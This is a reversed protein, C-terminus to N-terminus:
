KGVTFFRTVIDGITSDANPGHAVTTALSVSTALNACSGPSGMLPTAEWSVGEQAGANLVLATSLETTFDLCGADLVIAIDLQDCPQASEVWGQFGTSTMSAGPRSPAGIGRAQCVCACQGAHPAGLSGGQCSIDDLNCETTRCCAGHSACAAGFKPHNPDQTQCIGECGSSSQKYAPGLSACYLDCMDSCTQNAVCSPGGTGLCSLDNVDDPNTLCDPFPFRDPDAAQAIPVVNHNQVIDQDMPTGGDCDILGPECNLDPRPRSCLVGIPNIPFGNPDTGLNVTACEATGDIPDVAGCTIETTSDTLAVIQKILGGIPNEQILFNEKAICLGGPVCGKHFAPDSCEEGDNSGGECISFPTNVTVHSGIEGTPICFCNLCSGGGSCTGGPPDCEEGSELVGNGCVAGTGAGTAIADTEISETTNQICTALTEGACGPFLEGLTQGGGPIGACKELAKTLKTSCDKVIRGKPDGPPAGGICAALGAADEISGDKLGAKVCEGYGKWYAAGCKGLQKAVSAQCKAASKLSPDAKGDVVASALDPGFVAHILDLEADMAEDAITGTVGFGPNAAGSCVVGAVKTKAKAVKGKVDNTLCDEVTGGPGLKDPKGKGYNKICDGDDGGQAKDMKGAEKALGNLCKKADKSLQASALGPVLFLALLLATWGTRTRLGSRELM